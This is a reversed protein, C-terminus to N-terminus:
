ASRAMSTGDIARQPDLVLLLRDKLKCVGSILERSGVTLTEPV